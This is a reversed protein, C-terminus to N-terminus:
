HMRLSRTHHHMTFIFMAQSIPYKKEFIDIAKNVQAIFMSNNFFGDSQHELYIRAHETVSCFVM